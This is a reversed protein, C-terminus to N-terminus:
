WSGGAGKKMYLIYSIIVGDEGKMGAEAPGKRRHLLSCIYMFNVIFMSLVNGYSFYM